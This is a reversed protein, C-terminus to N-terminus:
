ITKNKIKPSNGDFVSIPGMQNQLSFDVFFQFKIWIQFPLCILLGIVMSRLIQRFWNCPKTCLNRVRM